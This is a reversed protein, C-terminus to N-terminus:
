SKQEVLDPIKVRNIILQQLISLSNSTVWYLVLGSPFTFMFAMFIVPMWMLIKQQTTDAALLYGFFEQLTEISPSDM